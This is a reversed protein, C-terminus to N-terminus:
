KSMLNLIAQSIIVLLLSIGIVFIHIEVIDYGSRTLGGEKEIFRAVTYISYFMIIGLVVQFGGVIKNIRSM